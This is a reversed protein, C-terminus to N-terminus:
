SPQKDLILGSKSRSNKRLFTHHTSQDKNNM